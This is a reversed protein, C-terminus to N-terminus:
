AGGGAKWEKLLTCGQPHTAVMFRGGDIEVLHLSHQPSLSLREISQLSKGRSPTQRGPNNWRRLAWLAAGLLAFVFLIASVQRLTEV